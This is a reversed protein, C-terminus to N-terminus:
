LSELWKDLEIPAGKSVLGDERVVHPLNTIKFIEQMYVTFM